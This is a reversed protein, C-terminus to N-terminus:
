KRSIILISGTSVSPYTSTYFLILFVSQFLRAFWHISLYISLFVLVNLVSTDFVVQGCMAARRAITERKLTTEALARSLEATKLPLHHLDM